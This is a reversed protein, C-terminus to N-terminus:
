HKIKETIEEQIIAEKEDIDETIYVTGPQTTEPQWYIEGQLILEM